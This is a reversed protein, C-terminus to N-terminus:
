LSWRWRAHPLVDTGCSAPAMCVVQFDSITFQAGVWVQVRDPSPSLSQQLAGEVSVSAIDHTTRTYVLLMRSRMPRGDVAAADLTDVEQAAFARM